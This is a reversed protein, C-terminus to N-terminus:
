PRYFLSRNWEFPLVEFNVRGLEGWREGEWQVWYVDGQGLGRKPKEIEVLPGLEWMCYIREAAREKKKNEEQVIHSEITRAQFREPRPVRELVFRLM